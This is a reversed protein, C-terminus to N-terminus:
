LQQSDGRSAIGELSEVYTMSTAAATDHDVLDAAGVGAAGVHQVTSRTAHWFCPQHHTSHPM